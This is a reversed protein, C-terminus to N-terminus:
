VTAAGGCKPCFKAGPMLGSGCKSCHAAKYLSAPIPKGCSQCNPARPTKTKCSPCEIFALAALGGLNGINGLVAGLGAAAAGAAAAAGGAVQGLQAGVQERMEEAGCSRCKSTREDYCGRCVVKKCTACEVFQEQVQQWHANRDVDQATGGLFSGIIPIQRLLSNKLQNGLAGSIDPRSSIQTGCSECYFVVYAGTNPRMEQFRPM